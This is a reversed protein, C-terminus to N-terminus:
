PKLDPYRKLLEDEVINIPIRTMANNLIVYSPEGVFMYSLSTTNYLKAFKEADAEDFFDAIISGGETKVGYTNGVLRKGDASWGKKSKFKKTMKQAIITLDDESLGEKLITNIKTEILKRLESTKM